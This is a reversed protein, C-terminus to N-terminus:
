PAEETDLVQKALEPFKKMLRKLSERERLDEEVERKLRAEKAQAIIMDEYSGEEEKSMVGLQRLWQRTGFDGMLYKECQTKHLVRPRIEEEDWDNDNGCYQEYKVMMFLHDTTVFIATDSFTGMRMDLITKGKLDYFGKAFKM